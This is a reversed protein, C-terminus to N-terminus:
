GGRDLTLKIQGCLAPEKRIEDAFVPPPNDKFFTGSRESCAARIVPGDLTVCSMGATQERPTTTKGVQRPGTVLVVGFMKVLKGVTGGAHRGIYVAYEEKEASEVDSVLKASSIGGTM